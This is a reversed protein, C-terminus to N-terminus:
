DIDNKVFLTLFFLNWLNLNISSLYKIQEWMQPPLKKKDFGGRIAIPILMM